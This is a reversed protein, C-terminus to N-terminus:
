ALTAHARVQERVEDMTQMIRVTEALPMAECERSGDRLARAVAELQPGYGTGDIPHNETRQSPSADWITLTTPRYMPPEVRIRGHEALIEFDPARRARMSIYLTASADGHDLVVVDQEDIGTRGVAGTALVRAPTGLIMSAMSVLYVGADLLAGGGLRPDFLYNAPDYAPVFAGGGTVLRVAGLEGSALMTRLREVAPLFRTWMAEMVFVGRHQAAAAVREAEAGDLTFPKECLVAKNAAICDLMAAVHESPPTAIYVADVAPDAALERVSDYPTCATRSGVFERAHGIRRSAVAAVAHGKPGLREIEDAMTRAMRGTGVIGWRVTRM